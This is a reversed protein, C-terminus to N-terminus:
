VDAMYYGEINHMHTERPNLPKSVEGWSVTLLLRRRDVCCESQMRRREARERCM